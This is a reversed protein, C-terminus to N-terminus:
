LRQLLASPILGAGGACPVTDLRTREKRTRLPAFLRNDYTAVVNGRVCGCNESRESVNAGPGVRTGARARQAAKEAAIASSMCHRSTRATRLPTQVADISEIFLARTRRRVRSRLESPQRRALLKGSHKAARKLGVDGHIRAGGRTEGGARHLSCTCGRGRGRHECVHVAFAPQAHHVNAALRVRPHAAGLTRERTHAGSERQLAGCRRGSAHQQSSLRKLLNSLVSQFLHAPCRRGVASPAHAQAISYCAEGRM